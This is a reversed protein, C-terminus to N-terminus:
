AGSGGGARRPDAADRLLWLEAVMLNPVWCLFPVILYARLFALHDDIGQMSVFLPTLAILWLRLTVAAYTLAFTRVVWRHHAAVDGRRITRYANVAGVLWLAALTGFGATGIPGALNTWALILGASGAVVIASLVIRGVARHLRPLRLRVRDAFQLPSLLLATGGCGVHLYFVTKLWVARDVYNAAVEKDDAALDRLSQTAYPLVAFAAIATASLVIWWFGIRHKRPAAGPRLRYENVAM